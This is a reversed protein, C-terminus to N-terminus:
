YKKIEFTNNQQVVQRDKNPTCYIAGGDDPFWWSFRNKDPSDESYFILEDLYSPTELYYYKSSHYWGM